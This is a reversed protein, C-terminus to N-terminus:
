TPPIVDHAVFIERRNSWFHPSSNIYVGQNNLNTYWAISQHCWYDEASHKRSRRGDGSPRSERNFSQTAQIHVSHVCRTGWSSMSWRDLLHPLTAVTSWVNASRNHCTATTLLRRRAKARKARSGAEIRLANAATCRCITNASLSLDQTSTRFSVHGCTKIVWIEQKVDSDGMALEDGCNPCVVVEYEEPSRTFGAEPEPPPSYKPTPPRNAGEFGMDFAPMGYNLTVPMGTPVNMGGSRPAGFNGVAPAAAAAGATRHQHQHAHRHGHNHNSPDLARVEQDLGPFRINLQRMLGGRIHAGREMMINAINGLGFGRDAQSSTGANTTATPQERSVGGRIATGLHVVDEDDDQTLDITESNNPPYPTVSRPPQLQALAPTSRRSATRQRPRPIRYSTLVEIDNDMDPPPSPEPPPRRLSSFQPRRTGPLALYRAGPLQSTDQEEDEDDSSPSDILDRGWRPLRQARSSGTVARDSRAALRSPRESGQSEQAGDEDTLDIVVPNSRGNPTSERATSSASMVPRRFDLGDGPYHFPPLRLSQPSENVRRRRSSQENDYHEDLLGSFPDPTDDRHSANMTSFSRQEVRTLQVPEISSLSSSTFAPSSAFSLEGVKNSERRMFPRSGGGIDMIM